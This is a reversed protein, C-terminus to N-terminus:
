WQATVSDRYESYDNWTQGCETFPPPTTFSSYFYYMVWTLLANNQLLNCFGCLLFVYGIGIIIGDTSWTILENHVSV